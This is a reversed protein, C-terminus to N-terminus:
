QDSDQTDNKAHEVGALYAMILCWVVRLKADFDVVYDDIDYEVADRYAADLDVRDIEDM